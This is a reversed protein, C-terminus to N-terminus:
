WLNLCIGTSWKKESHVQKTLQTTFSLGFQRQTWSASTTTRQHYFPRVWHQWPWFSCKEGRRVYDGTLYTKVETEWVSDGSRKTFYVSAYWKVSAQFMSLKVTLIDRTKSVLRYSIHCHPVHTPKTVLRTDLPLLPRNFAPHSQIPQHAWWEGTDCLWLPVDM